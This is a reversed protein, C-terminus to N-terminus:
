GPSNAESNENLDQRALWSGILSGGIAFFFNTMLSQGDDIILTCIMAIVLCYAVRRIENLFIEMASLFDHM